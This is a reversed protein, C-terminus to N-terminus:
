VKYDDDPIEVTAGSALAARARLAIALARVGEEAPCAVDAGETVARLFSELGYYVSPHPLGVGETLKGQAALKTAEAILTIGEDNHFRQRNAYVEWGLTPADAEKFMWGHSWALKVSGMTGNLLEYRGDYSSALTASWSCLVGKDYELECRVTDPETRGDQWALLAGHARVARPLLGSFWSLVDFQHTGLEGVLGLSVEPDLRWNLYRERAPDDSPTRWSGKQHDQARMGVVDRIAGSRVFGRALTYVPNARGEHGVQFVKGGARAARAIARADELTHAIPGECYVHKRAGVADIAIAKHQHTPTAVLVADITGDDLVERYDAVLKAEAARRAAGRLRREDNDVIAAVTVDELKALEGLIARGQRGAGILAVRVPAALRAPLGLLESSLSLSAAGGAGILFSRRDPSTM